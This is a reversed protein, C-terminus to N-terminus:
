AELFDGFRAFSVGFRRWSVGLFSWSDGSAGFLWQLGWFLEWTAEFSPALFGRPGVVVHWRVSSLGRVWWVPVTAPYASALLHSGRDDLRIGRFRGWSAGLSGLCVGPHGGPGELIGRLPM